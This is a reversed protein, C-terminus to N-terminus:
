CAKRRKLDDGPKEFLPTTTKLLRHQVMLCSHLIIAEFEKTM